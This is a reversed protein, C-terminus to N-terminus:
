RAFSQVHSSKENEHASTMTSVPDIEGRRARVPVSMKGTMKPTVRPTRDSAAGM